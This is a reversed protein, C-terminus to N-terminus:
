ASAELRLTGQALREVAVKVLGATDRADIPWRWSERGYLAEALPEIAARTDAKVLREGERKGERYSNTSAEVVARAVFAAGPAQQYANRVLSCVFSRPWPEPTLKAAKRHEVLKRGEDGDATLLVGWSEPIGEVLVSEDWAVLTWSDCYRAVAEHKSPDALERKLDARSAKVEFGDLKMRSSKWVGLALVDAYRNAGYFGTGPACEEVVVHSLSMARQDGEFKRRILDLMTATREADPVKRLRSM